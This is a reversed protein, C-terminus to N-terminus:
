ESDTDSDIIIRRRKPKSEAANSGYYNNVSIKCNVLHAHQLFQDCVASQSLNSSTNSNYMMNCVNTQPQANNTLVNHVNAYPKSLGQNAHSVGLNSPIALAHTQKEKQGSLIDSMEHQM